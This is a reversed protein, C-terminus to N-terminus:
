FMCCANIQWRNKTVIWIPITFNDLLRYNLLCEKQYGMVILDYPHNQVMNQIITSFEGQVIKEDWIINKTFLLKKVDDFVITKATQNQGWLIDKKTQVRMHSSLYEESLKDTQYLTKEEIIYLFTLKSQFLEALHIARILVDESINESSIPVLIDSFM